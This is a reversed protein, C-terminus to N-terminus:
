EKISHIILGARLESMLERVATEKTEADGADDQEGADDDDTGEGADEDTDDSGEPTEPVAPTAKGSDTSTGVGTDVLLGQLKDICDRIVAADASANRRGEKILEPIVGLLDDLNKVSGPTILALANMGWVVVSVEWLKLEKLYRTESSDSAAVVDYTITEYGISLADLSGDDIKNLLEDGCMGKSVYFTCFLGHDDEVADRVKGIVAKTGSWYDHGDMLKVKGAKIRPMTNTFAGPLIVDGGDDRNNFVAGYGTFTRETFDVTDAKVELLVAKREIVPAKKVESVPSETPEDSPPDEASLDGSKGSWPDEGGAKKIYKAVHTKVAAEDETPIDVGGRGGNLVGVVAPLAAPVCVLKGDVLDVFPLKCDGKIEPLNSAVWFFGKAFKEWDPSDGDLGCADARRKTAATADWATGEDALPLDAFKTTPM